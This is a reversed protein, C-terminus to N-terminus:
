VSFKAQVAAIHRTLAACMRPFDADHYLKAARDTAAPAFGLSTLFEATLSIGLREGIQGLRLAPPTTASAASGISFLDDAVAAGNQANALDALQGQDALAAAQDQAIGQHAAAIASRISPQAVQTARDATAQAARQASVQAAQQEMQAKTEAAVRNREAQDAAAQREAAAKTESAQREADARRQAAEAAAKTAAIEALQRDIEAQALRNKEAQADAEAKLRAAAAERERLAAAEQEAALAALRDAEAKQAAAVREAEAQALRQREAAAERLQALEAREATIRAAEAESESATVQLAALKALVETRATKAADLLTGFTDDPEDAELAAVMKAIVEASQGVAQLPLERIAVVRLRTQEARAAEAAKLDEKRKKEAEIANHFKAEYPAVAELLDRYKTDLLKGIQLIPAKRDARAKEGAIRVDDRFAARYKICVDMGATTSADPTIADAEVKLTELKDNFPKFVEAVYKAPDLTILQSTAPAGTGAQIAVAGVAENEAPHNNM